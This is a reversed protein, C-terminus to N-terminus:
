GCDRPETAVGWRDIEAETLWHIDDTGAADTRFDYFAPDVGMDSLFARSMRRHPDFLVDQADYGTSGWAHVGIMAGCAVVRREGALFLDVAGSAIRSDPTLETTLGAARITRALHYNTTVDRTGPMTRFVLRTVQPNDRLLRRVAGQSRSTSTGDVFATDGQVVFRLGDPAAIRAGIAPVLILALILLLIVLPSPKM